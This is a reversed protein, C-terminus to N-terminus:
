ACTRGNLALQSTLYPIPFWRIANSSAQQYGKISSANIEVGKWGDGEV